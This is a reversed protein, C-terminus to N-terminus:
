RPINIISVQTTNDRPQVKIKRGFLEIGDMLKCAFIVSEVDSFEVFAFRPKNTKGEVNAKQDKL